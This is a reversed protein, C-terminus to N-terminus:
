KLISNSTSPPLVELRGDVMRAENTCAQLRDEGHHSVLVTHIHDAALSNLINLIAQRGAADLGSCPEDLLLLDPRGVLARALFVRRAQGTSLARMSRRALHEMCVRRLWYRAERYEEPSFARYTGVSGDFGSLVLEEVSLEYEYSAQLADSVLHIGRRIYELESVTTSHGTSRPLHREISGGAAPYEDGALLRLLTSKGSGNAGCLLWHQGQTIEWHIGHLVPARDVYVSVNHLAVLPPQNQQTQTAPSFFLSSAAPAASQPSDEGKTVAPPAPPSDFLRGDQMYLTRDIWPPLTHVRHSTLVITSNEAAEALVRLVNHRTPADLGDLCEDLLLLAPRRVLARALLLLRLQGQSLTAIARPLLHQLQLKYALERVAQAQKPAPLTYLLPSDEFGTLLLDEGRLDWAQRVYNEHQAASVLASMARGMLPSHEEQGSEPPYWLIPASQETAGRGAADPWQEGRLLRLLTSKGAGNPGLLATHQGKCLDLSIDRLAPHSAGRGHLTVSAHHLTVLKM